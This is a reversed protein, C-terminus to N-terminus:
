HLESDSEADIAGKFPRSRPGLFRKSTMKQDQGICEAYLTLTRSIVKQFNMCTSDDSRAELICFQGMILTPFRHRGVTVGIDSEFGYSRGKKSLKCTSRSGTETHHTYTYTPISGNEVDAHTVPAVPM